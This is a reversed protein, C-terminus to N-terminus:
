RTLRVEQIWLPDGSVRLRLDAGGNQGGGLKPDSLSFRAVQWQGSGMRTVSPVALKYAGSVPAASDRSDYEIEVSGQGEDWYSLVVTVPAEEKLFGLAVDFYLFTQSSPRPLRWCPKGEKTEVDFPGDDWRLPSLGREEGPRASVSQGWEQDQPRHKEPDEQYARVLWLLSYLDVFEIANGSLEQARTQVEKYWSPSKLISRFVTFQPRDRRVSAAIRKAAGEESDPLDAGMRLFPMDGVLGQVNCKQPVIGDPSFRSYAKWGEESLGRAYGDIVFGTLTIDWQHYIKECHEAWAKVGSPLLSHPRPESLYGPNLYGAGSDGAVFMDLNSRTERTWWLGVPFRSALNPNFAWSLPLSGRAPDMWVRPLNWYLWAAADYDGVYHAVFCRPKIRGKSDLLGAKKLSRATPKPNQPIKKPLPQHQFFSANAMSSYGLADADMYANYCSLIEAYRWETPVGDHHGGADWVENRHTTYKYAWPTFGAAHIMGPQPVQEYCAKLLACLTKADTGSPQGPDDVPSEDDWCGLDFLIGRRAMVFDQNTLTCNQPSSARWSQLWFADLYYGMVSPNARGKSIVQDILWLYADCKASGTSPQGVDPIVGTGTFLPSGDEAMLIRKVPFGAVLLEQCLSGEEADFRCCLLDECGALTSALNSTAPVREDYLVLGQALSGFRRILATLNPFSEVEKGALWGGPETLREWWFSDPERNYLVYLRPEERNALAQLSSIFHTEDWFRRRAKLDNLDLAFLPTMDYFAIPDNMKVESGCVAQITLLFSILTTM